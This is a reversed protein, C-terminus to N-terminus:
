EPDPVGAELIVGNGNNNDGRYSRSLLRNVTEFDLSSPKAFQGAM